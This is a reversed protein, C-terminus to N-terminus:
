NETAEMSAQQPTEEADSTVIISPTSPEPMWYNGRRSDEFERFLIGKPWSSPDLAVARFKPDVGVKFSIFNLSNVDTGQKVLPVAKAAECQLCERALKEVAEYNVSPHLRSLYVWFMTIPVPVSAVCNSDAIRTGGVFSKAPQNDNDIRRRKMARREASIPMSPTISNIRNSLHAIQQSHKVLENKLETNAVEQNKTLECIADGVSSVANRFRVLKMLKACEDCMWYLNTADSISKAFNKDINACRLHVIHDCFGMCTIVEDNRKIAKACRDCATSM